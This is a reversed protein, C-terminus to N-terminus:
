GPRNFQRIVGIAIGIIVIGIILYTIYPPLSQSTFCKLNDLNIQTSCGNDDTIIYTGLDSVGPDLNFIPDPDQTKVGNPSTVTYPPKGGTIILKAQCNSVEKEVILPKFPLKIVKEIYCGSEDKVAFYIKDQDDPVELKYIATKSDLLVDVESCCWNLNEKQKCLEKKDLPCETVTYTGTGGSIQIELQTSNANCIPFIELEMKCANMPIPYEIIESKCNDQDVLIRYYTRIKRNIELLTPFAKRPDDIGESPFWFTKLNQGTSKVLSSVEAEGSGLQDGPKLSTSKRAQITQITGTQNCKGCNVEDDNHCGLKIRTLNTLISPHCDFYIESQSLLFSCDNKFDSKPRIEFAVLGITEEYPFQTLYGTEGTGRLNNLCLWYEVTHDLPNIKFEALELDTPFTTTLNTVTNLDLRSDIWTKIRVDKAPGTGINQFRINYVIRNNTQNYLCATNNFNSFQLNPDHSKKISSTIPGPPMDPTCPLSAAEDLVDEVIQGFVELQSLNTSPDVQFYLFFTHQEGPQFDDKDLDFFIEFYNGNVELSPNSENNFNMWHFSISYNNGGQSYNLTSSQVNQLPSFDSPTDQILLNKSLSFKLRVDESLTTTCPNQYQFAYSIIDGEKPKNPPEFIVPERSPIIKFLENQGLEIHPTPTNTTLSTITLNSAGNKYDALIRSQPPPDDDYEEKHTLEVSPTYNGTNLYTHEITSNSHMDITDFTGDGFNWLYAYNGQDVADLNKDLWNVISFEFRNAHPTNSNNHPVATWEIKQTIGVSCCFIMLSLCLFYSAKQRLFRICKM